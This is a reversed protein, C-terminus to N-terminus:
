SGKVFSCRIDTTTRVWYSIIDFKSATTSLTPAGAGGFNWYTGYALLRGGTADQGVAIHGSQGVALNTPNALTATAGTLTLQYDNSLSFDATVTSAYTLVTTSSRQPGSYTNAGALGPVGLNTRATGANALDSLNSASALYGGSVAILQLNTGDSRATYIPGVVLEGGTLATTGNKTVTL